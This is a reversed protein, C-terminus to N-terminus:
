AKVGRKIVLLNDYADDFEMQTYHVLQIWKDKLIQIICTRSRNNYEYRYLFLIHLYPKNGDEENDISPLIFTYYDLNPSTDIGLICVQRGFHKAYINQISAILCAENKDTVIGNWDPEKWRTDYISAYNHWTKNVSNYPVGSLGIGVLGSKLLDRRNM